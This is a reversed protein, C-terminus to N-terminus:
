AKFYFEQCIYFTALLTAQEMDYIKNELLVPQTDAVTHRQRYVPSNNFQQVYEFVGMMGGWLEASPGTSSLM